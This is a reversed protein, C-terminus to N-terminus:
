LRIHTTLRQTSAMFIQRRCVQFVLRLGAWVVASITPDAQIAIDIIRFFRKLRAMCGGMKTVFKEIKPRTLYSEQIQRVTDIVKEASASKLDDSFSQRTKDDITLSAMYADASALLSLALTSTM